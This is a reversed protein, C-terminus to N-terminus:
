KKRGRGRPPPANKIIEQVEEFSLKGPDEKHEKPLKVNKKGAKIYPGWRGNLITIEPDEDFTKIMKERDAKRKAEILEIGKKLKIKYPDGDEPKISVFKSDHQIYPGFRGINAKVEKGEYEGLVRPLTFLILAEELTITLISQHPLLKAIGLEREGVSREATETVEHVEKIFPTYFGDIMKRWKVDGEAIKDFEGEIKATFGYDLIEGFHQVLFSNVVMGKDTPCLKGKTSGTKETETISAVKGGALTHVQYKRERGEYDGKIVYERRQITSITPAYTSPRGIGLEELKKVLAAETFRAPPRTFRETATMDGLPLDQGVTLPPLLKSEDGKSLADEDMSDRYVKLYGEFTLVEGKAVLKDEIKTADIKVTTRELEADSMQSAMARAWILKYLKTQEQSAKIDKLSFDTPRIAEHAEQADKSKNKYKQTNLFKAGYKDKIEKAAAEIATDSLNVSDTRMYTIKGQEYLKQAVGMTRAVNFGLKTSAEQQLTSTTFPAKPKKKAPKVDMTGISFDSANCNDLFEKVEKESQLKRSLEAKLQTEKGKKDKVLFNATVRYFPSSEFAMIENEREVLIRVAVSQVRGASLKPAVKKWLIPSLKFGVLRDLVRRAQQADVLAKNVVRPNAVAAKIAKATIEHFVIRKTKDIDLDLVECLHWSIAEGERDEDTALWVEEAGKTLKKLEKVTAKKDDPVIYTCEFENEVDIAKDGKALDRIHGYSSTVKFDKGLIKEITKAKAPSEVILVNKAM